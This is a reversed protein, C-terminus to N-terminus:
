NLISSTMPFSLSSVESVIDTSHIFAVRTSGPEIKWEKTGGSRAYELKEKSKEVLNDVVHDLRVINKIM